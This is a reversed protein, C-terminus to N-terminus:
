GEAPRIDQVRFQITRGGMWENYEPFFAIDISGRAMPQKAELGFSIADFTRGGAQLSMKLHHGQGVIRSKLVRLGSGLFLPQPNCMGHPELKEMSAIFGEDIGGADIEADLELRPVFDETKLSEAAVKEFCVAFDELRSVEITLGAAAKHGGFEVITDSCKSLGQFIHFGGISRGSGHGRGGSLAILITPRCYKRAIRSAVIGIVGPHWDESWMVISNRRPIEPDKQLAANVGNLIEEEIKQRRANQWNLEEALMRAHEPDPTILLEVGYRADELRGAANLRPALGFGVMRTTIQQSDIGSVEKLAVLGPRKTKALEKLGHKVLIRNDGLLPVVDAITGLVVLDLSERLNPQSANTLIGLDRLAKRLGLLLFFSVGVAALDKFPFGCDPRHPNLIAAAPPLVPPVQHHDVVIVDMGLTGAYAIEDCASIGCDVAIMLTCGNGCITAVAERNLGYGERNRAPIYYTAAAGVRRLFGLLLAVSTIGDVDYDGYVCIKEGGRIGAVIRDVAAGMDRMQLPDSLDTLESRYYRRAEEPTQIGRQSIIRAILSEVGLSAALAEVVAPDQRAMVWNSNPVSEIM